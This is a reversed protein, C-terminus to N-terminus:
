IIVFSVCGGDPLSDLKQKHGNKIQMSFRM